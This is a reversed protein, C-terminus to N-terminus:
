NELALLESLKVFNYGHNRYNQVIQPLAKISATRSKYWLHMLLISGPELNQIADEYVKQADNWAPQSDPAINWGIMKRNNKKLYYPLLFFKKSGPARFYIEGEQGIARLLSDTRQIETDIFSWSKFIMRNHSYSHNALEHGSAILKKGNLINQQLEHGTVFFTSKIQLSDLLKIIEDTRLDNPGDDITLAVVRENTQVKQIIPLFFQFTWSGSIKWGLYLLILLFLLIIGFKLKM